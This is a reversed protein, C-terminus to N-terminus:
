FEATALIEKEREKVQKELLSTKQSLTDVFVSDTISDLNIKVNYLAALVATRATMVAVLGDTIANKNGRSIAKEAIGIIQFADEAVRMPVLAANKLGDQIAQNRRKIEAETGKPLKFATMVQNYAQPDEDIARILKERYDSVAEAIDKMETEVSQYGKKGITLNAVMETLGAAAAACLAAISGGGPTAEGSATKTLYESLTLDKLVSGGILLTQYKISSVPYEISSESYRILLM